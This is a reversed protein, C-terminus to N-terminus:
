WRMGKSNADCTQVPRQLVFVSAESDPYRLRMRLHMQVLFYNLFYSLRSTRQPQKVDYSTLSAFAMGRALAPSFFHQWIRSILQKTKWWIICLFRRMSVLLSVKVVKQFLSVPASFHGAIAEPITVSSASTLKQGISRAIMVIEVRAWNCLLVIDPNAQTALTETRNRLLSDFVAPLIYM